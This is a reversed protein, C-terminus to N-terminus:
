ESGELCRWRRMKDDFSAEGIGGEGVSEGTTVSVKVSGKVSGKVSPGM